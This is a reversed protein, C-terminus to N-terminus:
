YLSGQDIYDLGCDDLGWVHKIYLKTYFRVTVSVLMAPLCIACAIILHEAHSLPHNFNTTIGPPPLLAPITFTGTDLSTSSLTAM